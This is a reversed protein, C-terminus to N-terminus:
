NWVEFEDVYFETGGSLSSISVEDVVTTNDINEIGAQILRGDIYLDHTRATWDFNRLEM